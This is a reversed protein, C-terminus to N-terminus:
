IIKLKYKRKLIIQSNLIEKNMKFSIKILFNLNIILTQIKIM